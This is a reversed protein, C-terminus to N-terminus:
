AFCQWILIVYPEAVVMDQSLDRIQGINWFGHPQIARRPGAHRQPLLFVIEPAKLVM